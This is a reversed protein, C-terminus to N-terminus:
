IFYYMQMIYFYSWTIANIKIKFFYNFISIKVKQFYKQIIDSATESKTEEMWSGYLQLALSHLLPYECNDLEGVVFKLLVRFFFNNYIM